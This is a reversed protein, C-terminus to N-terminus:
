LNTRNLLLINAKQTVFSEREDRQNTKTVNDKRMSTVLLSKNRICSIFCIGYVISDVLEEVKTKLLFKDKLIKVKASESLAGKRRKEYLLHDEPNRLRRVTTNHYDISRSQHRLRKDPSPLYEFAKYMQMQLECKHRCKILEKRKGKLLLEFMKSILPMKQSPIGHYMDDLSQIRRLRSWEDESELWTTTSPLIESNYVQFKKTQVTNYQRKAYKDLIPSLLGFHQSQIEDLFNIDVTLSKMFKKTLSNENNVVNSFLQQVKIPDQLLTVEGKMKIEEETLQYPDGNPIVELFRYDADKCNRLRQYLKYKHLVMSEAEHNTEWMEAEFEGNFMREDNTLTSKVTLLSLFCHINEYLFPSFLEVFYKNLSALSSIKVGYFFVLDLLVEAPLDQLSLSTSKHEM